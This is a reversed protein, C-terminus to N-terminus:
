RGEGLSGEDQVSPCGQPFGRFRRAGEIAWAWGKLGRSNVGEGEDSSAGGWGWSRRALPPLAREAPQRPLFGLFSPPSPMWFSPPRGLARREAGRGFLWSAKGRRFTPVTCRPPGDKPFGVSGSAACHAFPRRGLIGFLFAAGLAGRGCGVFGRGRSGVWLTGEGGCRAKPPAGIGRAVFFPAAYGAGKKGGYHAFRPTLPQNQGRPGAVM